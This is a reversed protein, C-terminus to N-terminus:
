RRVEKILDQWRLGTDSILKHAARGAAIVGGPHVSGLMGLVKALRDTDFTPQDTTASPIPGSGAASLSWLHRKRGFGRAGAVKGQKELNRLARRVSALQADSVTVVGRRPRCDFVAATVQFTDLVATRALADLIAREV